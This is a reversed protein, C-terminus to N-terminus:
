KDAQHKQRANIVAKEYAIRAVKDSLNSMYYQPDSDFSAGRMKARAVVKRRYEFKNGPGKDEVDAFEVEMDSPDKLKPPTDGARSPAWEKLLASRIIQRLRTETLRAM